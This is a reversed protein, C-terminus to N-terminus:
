KNSYSKWYLGINDADQLSHVLGDRMCSSGTDNVFLIAFADGAALYYEERTLM